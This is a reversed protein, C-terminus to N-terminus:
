MDRVALVARAIDPRGYNIRGLSMRAVWIWRMSLSDCAANCSWIDEAGCNWTRPLNYGYNNRAPSLLTLLEEITPVRWNSFGQWAAANMQAIASDLSAFPLPSPSAYRQWMIATLTDAVTSDNFSLGELKQRIGKGRQNAWAKSWQSKKCFLNGATIREGLAPGSVMEGCTYLRHYAPPPLAPHVPEAPTGAATDTTADEDPVAFRDPIRIGDNEETQQVPHSFRKMIPTNNESTRLIVIILLICGTACLGGLISIVIVPLKKM